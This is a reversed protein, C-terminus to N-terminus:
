ETTREYTTKMQKVKAINPVNPNESYDFTWVMKNPGAFEVKYEGHLVPASKDSVDMILRDGAMKWRSNKMQNAIQKQLYAACDKAHEDMKGDASFIYVVNAYCPMHKVLMKFADSTKGNGAILMEGTKKWSGVVSQASSFVTAGSLILTLM